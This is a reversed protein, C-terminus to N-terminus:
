QENYDNAISFLLIQEANKGPFFIQKILDKAHVVQTVIYLSLINLIIHTGNQKLSPYKNSVQLLMILKSVCPLYMNLKFKFTSFFLTM